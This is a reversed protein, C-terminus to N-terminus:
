AANKPTRDQGAAIAKRTDRIYAAVYPHAPYLERVQRFKPLAARYRKAFFDDLAANYVLSTRSQVPRVGAAVLHKKIVGVPLIYSQNEQADDGTGAILTGIVKGREDFVPGGSNGGYSPAQAQIYPVGAITTRRANFAGQTLAPYLKSKPNFAPSNTIVGPFGNVYLQDGVQVDTDNGLPVTPLNGAGNMKLLAFDEGPYDLGKALLRLPTVKSTADMGGGPLARVLGIDRRLGTLRMHKANFRSFLAGTLKVMEDDAQAVDAVSELYAKVQEANLTTLATEGLAARVLSKPRDVCHAGTVMHGNPTIWWGTCYYGRAQDKFGVKEKRPKLYRGVDSAATRLIWKMQSQRDAPIRGAKAHKRAKATLGDFAKTTDPLPVVVTGTYKLEILVVAPDTQAALRTGIAVDGPKSAQTSVEASANGQAVTVGALVAGTMAVLRRAQKRM